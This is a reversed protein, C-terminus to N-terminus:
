SIAPFCISSSYAALSSKGPSRRRYSDMPPQRDRAEEHGGWRPEAIVSPSRYAEYTDM